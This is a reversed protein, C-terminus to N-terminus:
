GRFQDKMERLMSFAEEPEAPLGLASCFSPDIVRLFPNLRREDGMSVPLSFELQELEVIRAKLEESRPELHLAFRANAKTYEHGACVLADPSLSFLRELSRWMDKPACEFCRGCGLSFLLDGSFLWGFEQNTGPLRLLYVVHGTTHGPTEWCEFEFSNITFTQGESVTVDLPEIRDVERKSGWVKAGYQERLARVGGVHDHHHHTILIDTLQLCSTSLVREVSDFEGPDVLVCDDSLSSKVLWSYNDSLCPIPTVEITMQRSEISLAARAADKFFTLTSKRPLNQSDYSSSFRFTSM